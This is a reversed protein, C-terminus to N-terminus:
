SKNSRLSFFGLGRRRTSPPPPSVDPTPSPAKPLAPPPSPAPAATAGESGPAAATAWITGGASKAAFSQRVPAPSASTPPTEQSAPTTAAPAAGEGHRLSGGGKRAEVWSTVWGHTGSGGVHPTTDMFASLAQPTAQSAKQVLQACQAKLPAELIGQQLHEIDLEEFWAHAELEAFGGGRSGLRAEAEPDLLGEIFTALAPSFAALANGHTARVDAKAHHMIKHRLETESLAQLRLLDVTLSPSRLSPCVPRPRLDLGTPSRVQGELEWPSRGLLMEFTLVGLAWFDVAPGHQSSGSATSSARHGTASVASTEFLEPALYALRTADTKVFPDASVGDNTRVAGAFDVLQM